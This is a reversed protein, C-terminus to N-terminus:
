WQANRAPHRSHERPFRQNKVDHTFTAAPHERRRLLTTRVKLCSSWRLTVSPQGGRVNELQNHLSDWGARLVRDEAYSQGGEVSFDGGM